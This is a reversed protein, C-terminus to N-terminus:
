ISLSKLFNEPMTMGGSIIIKVADEVSIKTRIVDKEKLVQFFGSWPTPSTPILVNILKEGSDTITEKTVFGITWMERRPFEVLVVHMFSAKDPTAVTELIQRISNYLNRFVPVRMMMSNGFRVLRKGIFNRAVVGTLFILVIAVGFGVGRIDHGAIARIVPQLIDDIGDFVWILILVSAAVPVVVILGAVFQARLTKGWSVKAAKKVEMIVGGAEGV